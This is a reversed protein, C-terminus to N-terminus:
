NPKYTLMGIFTMSHRKFCVCPCFSNKFLKWNFNSVICHKMMRYHVLLLTKNFWFCPYVKFNVLCLQVYNDKEIVHKIVVELFILLFLHLLFPVNQAITFYRHNWFNKICKWFWYFILYNTYSHVSQAFIMSRM